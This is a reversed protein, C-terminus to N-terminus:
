YFWKREGSNDLEEELKRIVEMFRGLMIKSGRLDIKSEIEMDDWVAQAPDDVTSHHQWHKSTLIEALNAQYLVSERPSSHEFLEKKGKSCQRWRTDEEWPSQPINLRILALVMHDHLM